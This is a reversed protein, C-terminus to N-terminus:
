LGNQTLPEAKNNQIHINVQKLAMKFFVIREGFKGWQIKNRSGM